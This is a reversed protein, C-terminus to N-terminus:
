FVKWSALLHRALAQRHSKKKHKKSKKGCDNGVVPRFDHLLGNQADLRVTARQKPGKCLDRSNVVLSKQGGQMRLTFKSVPADPVVEFTNRIGGHVSDVRGDLEVEIPRTEPGRLAAVLDPLKNDSSRLYVPGSLQEELLPTTATAHGYVSGAPCEHAAFQVRTCVTRIHEQALFESHPLTVAARSVNAYGEGPPYTVTATLQQYDGRKTGGHLQIKLNPKFKLNGCEKAQFHDSLNAVAGSNGTVRATVQMPECSTPNLAFDSRDLDVRIDRVLLPIGKLIQPIPDSVATVQATKPNFNLATKVVQVGLDFPGAVAPVIFTFSLPAGKYPGTLYVKGTKVYLPNSGVGAGITTTGVQSSAPCSPHTLEEKGTRNPAEAAAVDAASCTAVGKLTATFGPPTTVTVNDFEQNGDPRTLDLTFPSHKGATPDTTGASFGLNFPRQAKSRPCNSGGVGSTVEFNDETQAASGSEPASWPTWEGKTTYKGCVDPTALSSRPGGGRIHLVLDEFPLQPNDDFTVTMQGTQPDLKVEGPLKAEIGTKEDDIVIYLALLSHFPNDEQAALYVTGKLTEELLPTEIEATGIKSGEPCTPENKDFRIRNPPAGSTTTLGIQQTSCTELGEGAAPNLTLGAPLKVVSRKLDPPATESYNVLGAQNISLNAIAATPTAAQFSEPQFSFSPKNPHPGNGLWSETLEECGTVAPVLTQERDLALPMQWTKSVMATVPGMGTAAEVEELPCDTPDTIFAKGAATTPAGELMTVAGYVRYTAPVNPAVLTVGYDRDSRVAGLVNAKAEIIKFTFQAAYGLSPIDNSVPVAPEGLGSTGTPFNQLVPTAKGVLAGSGCAGLKDQTCRETALPNGVFGPPLEVELNRLDEVPIVKGRVTKVTNVLFAAGASYPHGGAKEYSQGNEDFTGAWLVQIGSTAPTSSIVLHMPYVVQPPGGGSVTVPVSVPGTFGAGIKVPISFGTATGEPQVSASSSCTVHQGVVVCNGRTTGVIGVPLDFEAVLPQGGSAAGGVNTIVVAVEGEGEGGGQTRTSVVVSHTAGTLQSGNAVLTPVNTGAHPGSFRVLYPHSASSDGPGGSVEVGGGISGLANLASTVEGASADFPLPATSESAFELMFTGAEAEVAVAQIEDSVPPLNTPVGVALVKWAPAAASAVGVSGVGLVLALVGAFFAIRGHSKFSMKKTGRKWFSEVRGSFEVVRM